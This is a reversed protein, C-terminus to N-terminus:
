KIRVDFVQGTMESVLADISSRAVVEAKLLKNPDEEGFANHRMPTATREPNICNIQIGEGHWEEALAQTLNVVAAKSSSYLSYNSRGRTYSSSTFLLLQGKTKSLYSKAYRAIMVPAKYNIAISNDIDDQSLEELRSMTLVGATNVIFDIRGEKSYVEELAMKIDVDNEVHTATTSRSFSYVRAKYTRALKIIEKGIGYSGGFVVMVKDKLKDTREQDSYSSSQAAQLQFLKDAITADLPHTVKINSEAGDVIAVPTKPLYKIVVGCDDTAQFDPDKMAIDYAKEITTRKFAQPTQGRRLLSRDPINTIIEGDTEIITDASPIVVDVADYKKLADICRVIIEDTLFPRVADHFILNVDGTTHSIAIRSTDNRTKGGPIVKSVKSYGNAIRKGEDIYDPTMLVIIEDIYRSEQLAFLTHEIIPRGAIKLLQKPVDLRMREGVGGALVIAINKTDNTV